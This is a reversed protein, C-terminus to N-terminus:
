PNRIARHLTDDARLLLRSRIDEVFSIGKQLSDVRHQDVDLGVVNFGKEVALMALPLGVYGQGVVVVKKADVLENRDTARVM